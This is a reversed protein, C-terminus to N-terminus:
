RMQTNYHYCEIPFPIPIATTIVHPNTFSCRNSPETDIAGRSAYESQIPPLFEFDQRFHQTELRCVPYQIHTCSVTEPGGAHRLLTATNHPPLRVAAQKAIRTRDM